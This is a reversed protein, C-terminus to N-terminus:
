NLAPKAKNLRLSGSHVMRYITSKGIDLKKSVLLVDFNYRDLYGQIIETTYQQISKEETDGISGMRLTDFELDSAALIENASKVAAKEVITKLETTNGPYSYAVLKKCAEESIFQSPLKYKKCFANLYHRAIVLIDEKRHRLPPIEIGAGLIRYYLDERLAFQKVAESPPIRSSTIIRFNNGKEDLSMQIIHMLQTQEKDSLTDIKQLYITSGKHKLSQKIVNEVLISPSPQGSDSGKSSFLETLNMVIFPADNHNSAFHISKAIVMKETGKEGYLNVPIHAGAVKQIMPLIASIADSEGLLANAINWQDQEARNWKEAAMRLANQSILRKFHETLIRPALNDNYLCDYIGLELMEARHLASNSTSLLLIETLPLQARVSAIFNPVQVQSHSENVVIADPLKYLNAICAQLTVYRYVQISEPLHLQNLVAESYWPDDDLIFLTFQPM